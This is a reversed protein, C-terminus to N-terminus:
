PTLADNSTAPGHAGTRDQECAAPPAPGYAPLSLWDAVALIRVHDGIRVEVDDSGRRSVLVAARGQFRRVAAEDDM